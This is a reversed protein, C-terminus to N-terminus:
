IVQLADGNVKVMPGVLEVTAGSATEIKVGSASLALKSGGDIDLRVPALPNLQDFTLTGSPTKLVLTQPLGVIGQGDGWFCGTWIPHSIDGGEFEVWINTGPEPLFLFGVGNGAYPVCPLAWNLTNTGYVAPVSVQLRGKSLPDINNAVTGRHKGYQRETM